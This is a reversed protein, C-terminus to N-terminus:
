PPRPAVAQADWKTTIELVETLRVKKLQHSVLKLFDNFTEKRGDFQQASELGKSGTEFLKRDEEDSLDLANNYPNLIFSMTPKM